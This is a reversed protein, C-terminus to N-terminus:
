AVGPPGPVAQDGVEPDLAPTCLLRSVAGYLGILTVAEVTGRDGILQNVRAVDKADADV